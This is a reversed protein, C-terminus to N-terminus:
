SQIEPENYGHMMAGLTKEGLPSKSYWCDDANTANEKPKTRLFPCNPNLKSKYLEFTKMPCLPHGEVASVSGEGPTDSSTDNENHNEDYEDEVQFVSKAGTADVAVAFSSKTMQRLNESGRRCLRFMIDFWVKEQLVGPTEVDFSSYLKRIDEPEIEPHSEVKRKGCQKLRGQMTKFIQNCEIFSSDAKIDWSKLELSHRQLGYRLANFATM